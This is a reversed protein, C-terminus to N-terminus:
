NKGFLDKHLNHKNGEKDINVLYIGKKFISSINFGISNIKKNINTIHINLCALPLNSKRENYIKTYIYDKPVYEMTKINKAILNFIKGETSSLVVCGKPTNILGTDPYYVFHNSIIPDRDHVSAFLYKHEDILCQPASEYIEAIEDIVHRIRQEYGSIKM